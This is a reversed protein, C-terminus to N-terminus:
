REEKLINPALYSQHTKVVEGAITDEFPIKEEFKEDLSPYSGYFLMEKKEPDSIWIIAGEADLYEVVTRAVFKLIEKETLGPDLSLIGEAQAILQTVYLYLIEDKILDTIERVDELSFNIGKELLRSSISELHKPDIKMPPSGGTGLAAGAAGAQLPFDRRSPNAIPQAAMNTGGKKQQCGNKKVHCREMARRGIRGKRSRGYDRFFILM